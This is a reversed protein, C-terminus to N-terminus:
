FDIVGGQTVARLRFIDTERGFVLHQDRLLQVTEAHMKNFASPGARVRFINLEEPHDLRNRQLM